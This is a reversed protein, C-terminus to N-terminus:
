SKRFIRYKIPHFYLHCTNLRKELGKSYPVFVNRTWNKSLKSMAIKKIYENSDDLLIKARDASLLTIDVSLRIPEVIIGKKKLLEIDGNHIYSKPVVLEGKSVAAKIRELRKRQNLLMRENLM